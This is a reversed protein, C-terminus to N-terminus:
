FSTSLDCRYVDIFVIFDALIFFDIRIESYCEPSFHDTMVM